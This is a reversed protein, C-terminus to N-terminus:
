SRADSGAGVFLQAAQVANLVAALAAADGVALGFDAPCQIAIGLNFAACVSLAAALIPYPRPEGSKAALLRGSVALSGTLSIAESFLLDREMESAPEIPVSYPVYQIARHADGTNSIAHLQLNRAGCLLERGDWRVLLRGVDFGLTVELGALRVGASAPTLLRILASSSGEVVVRDDQLLAIWQKPPAAFILRDEAITLRQVLHGSTDLVSLEGGECDVALFRSTRRRLRRAHREISNLDDHQWEGAYSEM